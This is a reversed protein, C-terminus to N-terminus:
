SSWAAESDDTPSNTLRTQQSGDANMLYIEGSADRTSYFAIKSGDSSWAADWDYAPNKTLNTQQSGDAMMM